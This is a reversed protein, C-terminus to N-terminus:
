KSYLVENEIWLYKLQKAAFIIFLSIVKGVARGCVILSIMLKSSRAQSKTGLRTHLVTFISQPKSVVWVSNIVPISNSGHGGLTACEIELLQTKWEQSRLHLSLDRKM